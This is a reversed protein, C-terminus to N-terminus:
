RLKVWGMKTTPLNSALVLFRMKRATLILMLQRQEQPTPEYPKTIEKPM